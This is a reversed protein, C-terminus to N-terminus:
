TPEKSNGEALLKSITRYAGQLRVQDTQVETVAKALGQRRQELANFQESLSQLEEELRTKLESM